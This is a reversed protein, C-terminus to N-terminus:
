QATGVTRPRVLYYLLVASVIEAVLWVLRLLVAAAVAQRAGIDPQAELVLILLGERVGVGGPAVLMLFGVSTALAVSGTWVPWQSLDLPTNSVARLTFGLSLGHVSWGVALAISGVLLLRTDIRPRQESQDVTESVMRAAIWTLLRSILPLLLLFAALVLIPPLIPIAILQRCWWPWTATITADFLRPSLAAAVALGIGMMMLTEYAATLAATGARAGRDKLLAARIVLVGVKGPVYKGLHGCFYARATDAFRVDTDMSQLMRRWFWISPIWGIVYVGAALVLWGPAVEVQQVGEQNWLVRAQRAVFVLIVAFLSWKVIPWTWRRAANVPHQPSATAESQTM